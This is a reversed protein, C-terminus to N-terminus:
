VEIKVVQRIWVYGIFQMVGAIMLLTQGMRERFLLNMHDPNIFSLAICLVAPLALLVSWVRRLPLDTRVTLWALPVGVAVCTATVTTTLLLTRLLAKVTTSDTLTTWIDSGESAARLVLYAPSLLVAATVLAALAATFVPARRLRSGGVPLALAM